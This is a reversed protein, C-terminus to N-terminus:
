VEGRRSARDDVEDNKPAHWTTPAMEGISAVLALPTGLFVRMETRLPVSHALFVPVAHQVNKVM